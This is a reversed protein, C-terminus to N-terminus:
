EATLNGKLAAAATVAFYMMIETKRVSLVAGNGSRRLPISGASKVCKGM